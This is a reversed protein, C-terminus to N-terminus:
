ISPADQEMTIFKGPNMIGRPDLARRVARMMALEVPSKYRAAEDRRLVGLGHEASISGGYAAVLDHTIRNIGAQHGLFLEDDIGAPAAVNFHLNGDGLHGFVVMRVDPYAALIAAEGQAIFAAIRSIPVAIDHKINKGEAAEAGSIEERLAWLAQAQAHSAAITGDAILGKALAEELLAELAARATAEGTLDSLEILAYWPAAAELPARAGPRHRLVIGLCFDSLLEFATLQSGLQAQALGLLGLADDPSALAVFAPLRAAPRPYLKMVAATIIGLTGEAGIFLDRLDYGSNDKRLGRLGDWIEGAPTVVELGLCLERANGYRLVATGGANTSLNGGVTCSGEAALSLPFLRGAADAAAQVHQLICGAEVTITNNVPDVARVQNLRALSLLLADGSMDPISGGSLGTNGGQAVIPVGQGACWRVIAAVDATTDPQAVALARGRWRRRWDVLFPAMDADEYLLRGAFAARLSDLRAQRDSRAAM